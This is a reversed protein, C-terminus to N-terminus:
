ISGVDILLVKKIGVITETTFNVIFLSMKLMNWSSGGAPVLEMLVVTIWGAVGFSILLNVM